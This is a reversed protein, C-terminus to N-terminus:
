IRRDGAAVAKKCARHGTTAGRRHGSIDVVVGEIEGGEVEFLPRPRPLRAIRRRYDFNSAKALHEGVRLV